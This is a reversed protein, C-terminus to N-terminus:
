KPLYCISNEYYGGLSECRDKYWEDIFTCDDKAADYTAYEKESGNWALCKSKTTNEYCTGVSRARTSSTEGGLVNSYFGKLMDSDKFTNSTDETDVGIWLGDLETCKAELIDELAYKAEKIKQAVETKTRTEELKYTGDPQREGCNEFAYDIVMQALSRNNAATGSDSHKWTDVNEIYEMRGFEGLRCQWPFGEDGSQPTCLTQLYNDVGEGCGEAIRTDDVANVFNMLATLGCKKGAVTTVRNTKADIACGENSKPDDPDGFLTACALVKDACMAKAARAALGGAAQATTDDFDKLAGGQTDYCEKMTTVCSMKVEEIKEDQAQSIKILATRKFDNWVTDAMTRCTNLAPEANKRKEDLFKNFDPNQSLVDGSVGDLVILENLKFLRASYIPEGTAMNIYVGTYDLCKEYNPGCASNNTIAQEVKDICENVDTSNHARYEELRAERLYKEATRVTSKVQETKADLKKQYANCDQTILISYASKVMNKVAGAECSGGVLQMCQEHAQNYLETGELASLDKASSNDNFLSTANSGWIDGLDSSFDISLGSFSTMASSKQTDAAKKKGSLLDGIDALLAASASTDKKIAAEGETASYMANVEEATKDVANLNNNQFQDLMATAADLGEEKDRLNRFGDSCFCRRYTENAGACFQDMCTNYTERCTNYGEGLKSIDSFVATARARSAGMPMASRATTTTATRVMTKPMKASRSINLARRIVANGADSIISTARAITGNGSRNPVVTARAAVNRATRAVTDTGGRQTVVPTKARTTATTARARTREIDVGSRPTAGAATVVMTAVFLGRFINKINTNV